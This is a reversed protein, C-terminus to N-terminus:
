LVFNEFVHWVLSGQQVTTIFQRNVLQEIRQGTGLISFRRKVLEVDTEVEAWLCIAGQQLQCSLIKAGQPMLVYQDGTLQLIYKYIVRM